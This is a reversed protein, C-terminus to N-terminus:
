KNEREKYMLHIQDFIPQLDNKDEIRRKIEDITKDFEEKSIYKESLLLRLDQIAGQYKLRFEFNNQSIDKVDDVLSQKISETATSLKQVKEELPNIRSSILYKVSAALITLTTLAAGYLQIGDALSM